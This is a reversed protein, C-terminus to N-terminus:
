WIGHITPLTEILVDRGNLVVGTFSADSILTCEFAWMWYGRLFGCNGLVMEVNWAHINWRM